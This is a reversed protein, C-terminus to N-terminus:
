RLLAALEQPLVALVQSPPPPWLARRWATLLERREDSGPEALGLAREAFRSALPLDIRGLAQIRVPLLPGPTAVLPALEADLDLDQDMARLQALADAVLEADDSAHLTARALATADRERASALTRLALGRDAASADPRAGFRRAVEILAATPTGQWGRLVARQIVLDSSGRARASAAARGDSGTDGCLVHTAAEVLRVDDSALALRALTQTSRPLAGRAPDSGSAPAAGTEHAALALLAAARVAPDDDRDALERMSEVIRESVPQSAAVAEIAAIRITTERLALLRVLEDTGPSGGARRQAALALGLVAPDKLSADHLLADIQALRQPHPARQLGALLAILTDRHRRRSGGEARGLYRDISPSPQSDPLCGLAFAAAVRVSEPAERDLLRKGLEADAGDAALIGYAILARTRVGTDRDEFLPRIAERAGERGQAALILAAEGRVQPDRDALLAFLGGPAADQARAVGPAAAVAALALLAVLRRLGPGPSPCRATGSPSRASMTRSQVAAESDDTRRRPSTEAESPARGRRGRHEEHPARERAPPALRRAFGM